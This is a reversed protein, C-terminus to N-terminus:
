MSLQHTFLWLRIIQLYPKRLGAFCTARVKYLPTNSCEFSTAYLAHPMTFHTDFPILRTRIYCHLQKYSVTSPRSRVLFMGFGFCSCNGVNVHQRPVLLFVFRSFFQGWSSSDSSGKGVMHWEDEFIGLCSSVWRTRQISYICFQIINSTHLHLKRKFYTILKVSATFM